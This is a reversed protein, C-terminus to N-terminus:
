VIAAKEQLWHILDSAIKNRDVMERESVLTGMRVKRQLENFRTRIILYDADKIAFGDLSQFAEEMGSEKLLLLVEEIEKQTYIPEQKEDWELGETEFQMNFLVESIFISILQIIKFDRESFVDQSFSHVGLVGLKLRDRYMLPFYNLSRCQRLSSPISYVKAVEDATDKIKVERGENFCIISPDSLNSLLDSGIESILIEDDIYSIGKFELRDKNPNHVGIALLISEPANVLLTIESFVTKLLDEVQFQNLINVGLDALTHFQDKVEIAYSIYTALTKLTGEDYEDFVEPKYSQFSLVGIPYHSGLGMRQYMFAKRQRPFVTSEEKPDFGQSDEDINEIRIFPKHLLCHVSAKSSDKLINRQSEKFILENVNSDGWLCDMLNENQENVLYIAFITDPGIVTRIVPWINKIMQRVSSYDLIQYAIEQIHDDRDKIKTSLNEQKRQLHNIEREKRALTRKVFGKREYQRYFYFGLLIPVVGLLLSFIGIWLYSYDKPALDSLLTGIFAQQEKRFQQEVQFFQIDTERELTYYTDLVRKLQTFQEDVENLKNRLSLSLAKPTPTTDDLRVLYDELKLLADKVQQYLEDRYQQAEEPDKGYAQMRSRDILDKERRRLEYWLLLFDKDQYKIATDEMHHLSTRISGIIGEDVFGKEHANEVFAKMTGHFKDVEQYLVRYKKDSFDLISDVKFKLANLEWLLSDKSTDIQQEFKAAIVKEKIPIFQLFEAHAELLLPLEGNGTLEQSKKYNLNNQQALVYVLITLLLWVLVSILIPTRLKM